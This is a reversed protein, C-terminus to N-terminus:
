RKVIKYTISKSKIIYIGKSLSNTPIALYGNTDTQYTGILQGSVSYINVPMNSECQSLVIYNQEMHLNPTNAQIGEISNMEHFEGVVPEIKGLTYKYVDSTKYEISEKYTRVITTNKDAVITPHQSFPYTFCSGDHLWLNLFYAPETVEVDCSISVGNSAIVTVTAHGVGVGKVEGDSSVVAVSEDSSTWELALYSDAPYSQVDLKYSNSYDITLTEPISLLIPLPLVEVTCTAICGNDTTTTISSKGVKLANLTGDNSVSVISPNSSSWEVLAKAHSPTLSYKLQKSSGVPLTLSTKDLAIATPKRYYVNVKCDNSTLGNATKAYVITSGEAVGTVKGSSVTAVGTDKSYWTLTTTANYPALTASLTSSEGAYVTLSSPIFIDTPDIQIVDVDCYVLPGVIPDLTIRARGSGTATVNGRSDVTAVDENSSSWEGDISSYKDLSYSLRHTEGINLEIDEDSITAYNPLCRIRFTRTASGVHIRDDFTGMYSYHYQCEVIATGAFYHNIIIRTGTEDSDYLQVNSNDCSWFAHTVEGLPPDPTLLDSAVGVYLNQSFSKMSTAILLITLFGKWRLLLPIKRKM